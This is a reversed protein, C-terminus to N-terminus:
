KMFQTTHDFNCQGMLTITLAALKSRWYPITSDDLLVFHTDWSLAATHGYGGRFKWLPEQCVTRRERGRRGGKGAGERGEKRRGGRKEKGFM